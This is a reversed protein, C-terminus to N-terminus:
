VEDYVLPIPSNPDQENPMHPWLFEGSGETHMWILRKDHLLDKPELSVRVGGPRRMFYWFGNKVHGTFFHM